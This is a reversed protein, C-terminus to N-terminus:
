SRGIMSCSRVPVPTVKWIREAYEQISRDSSFFGCRATNLLSMASWRGPDRWTADVENQARRYDGIDAMVRYPDSGCLNALLPHFLARDGESFHGSGILDIAERALPDNELWPMPHYGARNLSDLEAATHGFLFFNDAGVRERIEINAGDLTGITLAGNLSMKMNGTGSAEMGATSIQESLDVAPYIRQGLKVSFNPLFVVRLRGDM